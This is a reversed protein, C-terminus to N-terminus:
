RLGQGQLAALLGCIVQPSAPSTLQSTDGGPNWVPPQVGHGEPAM